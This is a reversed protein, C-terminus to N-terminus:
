RYLVDKRLGFVERVNQDVKWILEIPVTELALPQYTHAVRHDSSREGIPYIRHYLMSVIFHSLLVIQEDVHVWFDCSDEVM